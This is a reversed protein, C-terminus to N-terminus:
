ADVSDPFEPCVCVAADVTPAESPHEYWKSGKGQLTAMGGGRRNVTLIWDASKCSTAVHKATVLYLFKTNTRKSAVSVFFGTGFYDIREEGTGKIVRGFFGVSRRLEEPIRMGWDKPREFYYRRVGGIRTDVFM